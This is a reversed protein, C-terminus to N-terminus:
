LLNKLTKLNTIADAMKKNKRFFTELTLAYFYKKKILFGSIKKLDIHGKGLFTNKKKIKNVDKIHIHNIQNYNKKLFKFSDKGLNGTDYCIGVKKNLNKKIEKSVKNIELSIMLKKKKLKLKLINIFDILLTDKLYNKEICPIIIIKIKNKLAFKIVKDIIEKNKKIKEFFNNKVFYDMNISYLVKKNLIKKKNYINILKFFFLKKDVIIEVFDFGIKKIIEFEYLSKKSPQNEGFYNNSFVRGQM